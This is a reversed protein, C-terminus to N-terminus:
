APSPAPTPTPDAGGVGGVLSRGANVFEEYKTPIKWKRKGVIEEIDHHTITEKDLLRQAVLELERAHDKLLARVRAYARDVIQKAEEDIKESTRESYPKPGFDQQDRPFSVQGVQDSMGFVTVMAYAMKTVKDLDDQAGTTVTGFSLDEAARGGLAMAMRDELQLRTHLSVEKPLYQAYGLAGSVRPVITVKLLPDAHELFWGALAHGAEHYAVTKREEPTMIASKRELGGIVRDVARELHEPTVVTARQRAALIAAENVVNSIQAGSFGPTLSAVRQAM